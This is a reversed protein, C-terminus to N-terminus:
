DGGGGKAEGMLKVAFGINTCLSAKRIQLNVRVISLTIKCESLHNGM